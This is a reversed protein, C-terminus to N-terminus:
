LGSKIGVGFAFLVEVYKLIKRLPIQTTLATCHSDYTVARKSCSSTHEIGPFAPHKKLPINWLCFSFITHLYPNTSQLQTQSQSTRICRPRLYCARKHGPTFIPGWDSWKWAINASFSFHQLLATTTSTNCPERHLIRPHRFVIKLISHHTVNKSRSTLWQQISFMTFSYHIHM